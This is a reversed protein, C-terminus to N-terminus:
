RSSKFCVAITKNNPTTFVNENPTFALVPAEISFDTSINGRADLFIWRKLSTLYAANFAHLYFGQAPEDFLM